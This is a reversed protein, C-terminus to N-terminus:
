PARPVMRPWPGATLLFRWALFGPAAGRARSPPSSGVRPSTGFTARRDMSGVALTRGDPSFMISRLSEKHGPLAALPGRRAVDWLQATGDTGGIALTSGDPSFALSGAGGQHMPLPALERRTTANWLRVAERFSGSAILKSDPSFAVAAVPGDHARFVEGAPKRVRRAADWVKVTGDRSATALTRGDPSFAVGQVGEAHGRLLGAGRRAAVKWLRVSANNSAAALTAGDPSFAVSVVIDMGGRLTGIARRSAIDWLKVEGPVVHGVYIGGGAALTRGDPAFALALVMGVHGTLTAVPQLTPLDWLRAMQDWNGTALLRGDPSIAVSSVERDCGGVAVVQCTAVDWLRAKGDSSGTAIQKGDPTFALPCDVGIPFQLNAAEHRTAVDWLRLADDHGGTALTKGDRSFALSVVRDSHGRLTAVEQRTALDWLRVTHDLGGTALTKGDPSYAVCFVTGRHGRLTFLEDGRCLRWLHRWEVGRLDEQGPPPRLAELVEQAHGINGQEWAQQALNMQSVYLLGRLTREQEEARRRKRAEERALVRLRRLEADPMNAAVWERDFVRAYIRNRVRLWGEAERVIGSLRLLSVRPDMEDDPVGGAGAERREHPSRGQRRVQAYLSLLSATEAETRLLRDRVFLLNDDRERARHSLFLAECRRDVAAADAVSPDQSIAQCLRQTLYPHGGTWYLVRKLLAAGQREEHGLGQALPAAEADTFDTLEIRRGINFPTTRPDRILDSPSAVGLLCFTLRAFAPDQTRRNYCERIGAFFEDTSFPLSRVTDIEDVFLVLRGPVRALVVEELAALWRQLPGLRPHALWFEELEDELDLQHGMLDLLGDYWQETSLNQGVRTLDLVVVAVGEERLRTATHVMLSSKGLQRATLVYCFVGRTLGEYLDADAQRRVYSPADPRLTGGTVYFSAATASV